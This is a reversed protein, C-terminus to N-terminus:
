TTTAADTTCMTRTPSVSVAIALLLPVVIAASARAFLISGDLGIM